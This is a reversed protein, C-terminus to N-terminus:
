CASRLESWTSIERSEIIKLPAVKGVSIDADGLGVNKLLKLHRYWTSETYMERAREWGENGIINWCGYAATAVRKNKALEFIRTKVDEDNKIHRSGIMRMFYTDWQNKLDKPKLDKWDNRKFFKSALKLELRLLRDALEIEQESYNKGTYDRYKIMNKIQPGKAYAIGSRLQSTQSWYVSDGAQQSVRYRGGECDRLILLADKVQPLSDFLLNKTVDVRTVTYSSIDTPLLINLAKSVHRSMALLCGSIDLQSSFSSGFVADGDGFVRAPSGSITLDSSGVHFTVQHSDRKISDWASTQFKVEGTKPNFRIIQDSILRLEDVQSRTFNLLSYRFTLRDILM